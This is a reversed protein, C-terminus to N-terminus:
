EKLKTKIGLTMNMKCRVKEQRKSILSDKLIMQKSEVNVKKLDRKLTKLFNSMKMSSKLIGRPRYRQSKMKSKVKVKELPYYFLTLRRATAAFEEWNNLNDAINQWIAGKKRSGSKSEFIGKSAMGRIVHIDKEKNWSM